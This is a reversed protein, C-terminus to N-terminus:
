VGCEFPHVVRMGWYLSVGLNNQLILNCQHDRNIKGNTKCYVVTDGSFWRAHSRWILSSSRLAIIALSRTVLPNTTVCEMRCIDKKAWMSATVGILSTGDDGDALSEFSKRM